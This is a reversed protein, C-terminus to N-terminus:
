LVSIDLFRSASDSFTWLGVGAAAAFQASTFTLVSTGNLYVTYANGVISVRVALSAGPAFLGDATTALQTYSGAIVSWLRVHGAVAALDILMYNSADQLRVVIGVESQVVVNALVDPTADVSAVYAVDGVGASPNYAAGSSVGWTGQGAVWPSGLSAANDARTFTDNLLYTLGGGSRAASWLLDLGLM